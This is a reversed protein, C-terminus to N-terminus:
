LPGLSDRTDGIIVAEYAVGSASFFGHFGHRRILWLSGRLCVASDAGRAQEMLVSVLVMVFVANAVLGMRAMAQGFVLGRSAETCEVLARTASQELKVVNYKALAQKLYEEAYERLEEATPSL